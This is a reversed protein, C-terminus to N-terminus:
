PSAFLDATSALIPKGTVFVQHLMGSFGLMALRAHTLEALELRPRTSPNDGFKLPDFGLNGPVRNKDEFMNMMTFKGDNFYSYELWAMFAFIQAIAEPPTSSFADVPNASYGPYGPLSSVEQILIATAAVMCIRGHKLEAERMWKVDFHDSLYLPDFGAEAGLLGSSQCKPATLFPLSKSPNTVTMSPSICRPAQSQLSTPATLGIAGTALALAAGMAKNVLVATAM